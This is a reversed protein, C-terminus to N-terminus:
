NMWVCSMIASYINLFAWIFACIWWSTNAFAQHPQCSPSKLLLPCVITIHCHPSFAIENQLLAADTWSFVAQSCVSFLFVCLLFVIRSLLIRKKELLLAMIRNEFKKWQSDSIFLEPFSCFNIEPLKELHWTNGCQITNFSELRWVQSLLKLMGRCHGRSSVFIRKFKFCDLPLLIFNM